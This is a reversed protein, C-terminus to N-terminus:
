RVAHALDTLSKQMAETASAFEEEARKMTFWAALIEAYERAVDELESNDRAKAMAGPFAVRIADEDVLGKRKYKEFADKRDVAEKNADRYKVYARVCRSQMASVDDQM